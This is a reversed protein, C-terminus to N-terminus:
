IRKRTKEDYVSLKKDYVSLQLEIWLSFYVVPIEKPISYKLHYIRNAAGRYKITFVSNIIKM